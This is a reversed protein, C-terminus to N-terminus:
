KKNIFDLSREDLSNMYDMHEDFYKEGIKTLGEQEIGDFYDTFLTKNILIRRHECAFVYVVDDDTKLAKGFKSNEVRVWENNEKVMHSGAVKIGKYDYLENDLVFKGTAFVSGSVGNTVTIIEDFASGLSVIAHSPETASPYKM